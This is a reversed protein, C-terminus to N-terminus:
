DLRKTVQKSDILFSVKVRKKELADLEENKMKIRRISRNSFLCSSLNASQNTNENFIPQDSQSQNM